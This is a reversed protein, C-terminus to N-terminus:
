PRARVHLERIFPFSLDGTWVPDAAIEFQPFRTVLDHILVRGELRSLGAGLCFHAGLAFALHRNAGREVLFRDPQDFEEPDRNASALGLLLRQGPEITVGDLNLRESVYRHVFHVPSMFRLTEDWAKESLDPRAILLDRQDGHTGIAFIANSISVRTTHYSAIFLGMLTTHLESESMAGARSAQVLSSVLDDGGLDLAAIHRAFFDAYFRAAEDAKQLKEPTLPEHSVIASLDDVKSFLLATDAGSIHLMRCAVEAPIGASLVRAVDVEGTADIQDLARSIIDAVWSAMGAVTRPNLAKMVVSRLRSHEPRDMHPLSERYFISAPGSGIHAPFEGARPQVTSITANLLKAVDRYRTVIHNTEGDLVVPVASAARRWDGYVNWRENANPSLIQTM